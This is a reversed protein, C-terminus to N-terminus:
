QHYVRVYRNIGPPFTANHADTFPLTSVNNSTQSPLLPPVLNSLSQNLKEIQKSKYLNLRDQVLTNEKCNSLDSPSRSHVSLDISHHNTIVTERNIEERTEGINMESISNRRNPSVNRVLDSTLSPFTDHVKSSNISHIRKTSNECEEKLDNKNSMNEIHENNNVTDLPKNPPTPFNVDRMTANLSDLHALYQYTTPLM